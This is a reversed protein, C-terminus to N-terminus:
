VTDKVQSAMEICKQCYCYCLWFSKTFWLFIGGVLL